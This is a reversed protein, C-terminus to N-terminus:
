LFIKAFYYLSHLICVVSIVAIINKYSDTYKNLNKLIFIATVFTLLPSNYAIVMILVLIIGEINSQFLKKKNDDESRNEYWKQTDRGKEKINNGLLEDLSAKYLHSLLILNEIDPCSLNNEWSSIAQRSINLQDAVYEQTFNNKKRYRKLLNGIDRMIGEVLCGYEEM